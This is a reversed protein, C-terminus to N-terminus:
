EVDQEGNEDRDKKRSVFYCRFHHLLKMFNHQREAYLDSVTNSAIDVIGFQIIRNDGQNHKGSLVESVQLITSQGIYRDGKRLKVSM